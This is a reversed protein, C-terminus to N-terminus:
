PSRFPFSKILGNNKGISSYFAKPTPFAFSRKAQNLGNEHVGDVGALPEAKPNRLPIIGKVEISKRRDAFLVGEANSRLRQNSKKPGSM